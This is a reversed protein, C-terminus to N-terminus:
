LDIVLFNLEDDKVMVRVFKNKVKFGGRWGYNIYAEEIIYREVPKIVKIGLLYNELDALSKCLYKSM